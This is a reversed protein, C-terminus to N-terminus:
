SNRDLNDCFGHEFITERQCIKVGFQANLRSGTQCRRAQHGESRSQWSHEEGHRFSSQREPFIERRQRPAEEYIGRPCRRAPTWGEGEQLPPHVNLVSPRPSWPKQQMSTMLAPDFLRGYKITLAPLASLRRQRLAPSMRQANAMAPNQGHYHHRFDAPIQRCYLLLGSKEQSIYKLRVNM